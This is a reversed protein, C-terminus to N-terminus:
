VPLIAGKQGDWGDDPASDRGAPSHGPRHRLGPPSQLRATTRVTHRFGGGSSSSSKSATSVRKDPAPSTAEKPGARAKTAHETAPNNAPNNAATTSSPPNSPPPDTPGTNNASGVCKCGQNCLYYNTVPASPAKRFIEVLIPSHSLIYLGCCVFFGIMFHNGNVLIDGKLPPMQIATAM